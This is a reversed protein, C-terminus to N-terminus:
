ALVGIEPNRDFLFISLNVVLLVIFGALGTVGVTLDSGGAIVMIALGAVANLTGHMIAAAIVSRSKLRIYSFLPSLLMTWAIMMFVGPIPHQPYNLGQLVLPAHWIGWVLGILLSSKWFGLFSLKKLLYGRWGLEEGFGAIANVTIGALLGQVIGMFFPHIPAQVLMAKMQAIQEPELNAGFRAFMGEMGPSFVVGPFLLSVGFTAIALLVPLFWAVFFWRNWRFSIGLERLPKKEIRKQMFIAVSMPVFMYVLGLFMFNPSKWGGGFLAFLGVMLFSILYTAGIFQWTKKTNPEM